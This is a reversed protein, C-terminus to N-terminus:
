DLCSQFPVMILKTVPESYYGDALRSFRVQDQYPIIPLLIISAFFVPCIQMQCRYQTYRCVSCSGRTHGIMINAVSQVHFGHWMKLGILMRHNTESPFNINCRTYAKSLQKGSKSPVFCDHSRRVATIRSCRGASSLQLRSLFRLSSSRIIQM